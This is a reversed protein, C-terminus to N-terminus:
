FAHLTRGLLIVLDSLMNVCVKPLIRTLECKKILILMFMLKISEFFLTFSLSCSLTQAREMEDWVRYEETKEDTM